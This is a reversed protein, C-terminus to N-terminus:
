PGVETAGSHDLVRAGWAHEIAARISGISGGPEGAAIVCRVPLAALDFGTEAAVEAMRLLYSPTSFVITAECDALLQLRATTSLGGGPVVMASREAVADHASWFGVFPGFSFAMLVRDASNVEIADLVYQWCEMWWQWDDATDLLVLPRGHTGSTQHYRLYRERPYTLNAAWNGGPASGILEPKTTFPLQRFEELTTPPACGALKNRYFVNTPLIKALLEGFQRLQAEELAARDLGELRRRELPDTRHQM